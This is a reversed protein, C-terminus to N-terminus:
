IPPPSSQTKTNPEKWKSSHPIYKPTPAFHTSHVSQSLPTAVDVSNPPLPRITANERLRMTCQLSGPALLFPLPVVQRLMHQSNTRHETKSRSQKLKLEFSIPKRIEHDSRHLM